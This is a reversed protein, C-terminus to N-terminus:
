ELVGSWQGIIETGDQAVLNFTITADNGENNITVTGQQINFSTTINNEEIEIEVNYFTFAQRIESYTYTGESIGTESDTNLDFEVFLNNSFIEIDRDYSGDNNIEYSQLIAMGDMTYITGAISIENNLNLTLNGDDDSDCSQLIFVSITFLLFTSIIKKM